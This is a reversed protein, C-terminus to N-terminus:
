PGATVAARVRATYPACRAHATCIARVTGTPLADLVRALSRRAARADDSYPDRAPRLAGRLTHSAGDGVLLIGRVLYAMSGPTHGPLAFAAITDHGFVLTTDGRLARVDLTGPPPWRTPRVVEALRAMPGRPLARGSLRDVDGAGVYFPARAVTRWAGVHDRHAHTLVVAVVDHPTADLRALADRLADDAHVWGLDIVVVGADTRLAYVLSANAGNTTAIAARHPAALWGRAEPLPARCASALALAGLAAYAGAHM